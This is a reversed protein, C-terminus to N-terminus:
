EHWLEKYPHFLRWGDPRALEGQIYDQRIAITEANLPLHTASGQEASDWFVGIDKEFIDLGFIQALTPDKYELMGLKKNDLQLFNEFFQRTLIELIYLCCKLPKDYGYTARVFDTFALYDQRYQKTPTTWTWQQELQEDMDRLGSFFVQNNSMGPLITAIDTFLLMDWQLIAISDWDLDRGRKDYWDLLMLDGHIWKDYSDAGYTSPYVWMDDLLSGLLKEYDAAHEVDGGYLGFIKHDPNHRRIIELHNKTIEPEKYFWYLITPNFNSMDYTYRVRM